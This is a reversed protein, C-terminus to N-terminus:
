APDPSTGAADPISLQIACSIRKLGLIEYHNGEYGGMESNRIRLEVMAYSCSTLDDSEIEGHELRSNVGLVAYVQYTM